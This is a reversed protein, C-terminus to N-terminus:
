LLGERQFFAHIEPAYSDIINKAKEVKDPTNWIVVFDKTDSHQNYHIIYAKDIEIGELEAALFYLPIQDKRAWQIAPQVGTKFEFLNPSDICDFVASLDFLENYQTVVKKEAEPIMLGM